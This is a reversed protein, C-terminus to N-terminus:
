KLVDGVTSNDKAVHVSPSVTGFNALDPMFITSKNGRFYYVVRTTAEHERRTRKHQLRSKLNKYKNKAKRSSILTVQSKKFNIPLAISALYVM